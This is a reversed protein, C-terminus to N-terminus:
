QNRLGEVLEDTRIGALNIMRRINGMTGVKIVENRSPIKVTFVCGPKMWIEDDGKKNVLEYGKKEIFKRIQNSEINRFFKGKKSPM